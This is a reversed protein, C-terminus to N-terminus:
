RTVPPSLDLLQAFAGENTHGFAELEVLRGTAVDDLTLRGDSWRTVRFPITPSAMDERRRERVLGSLVTRMFGNTAPPITSVQAGTGAQTVTISGDDHDQMVLDASRIVSAVPPGGGPRGFHSQLGVGVTVIALTAIVLTPRSPRARKRTM